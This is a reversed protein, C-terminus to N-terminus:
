FDKDSQDLFLKKIKLEVRLLLFGVSDFKETWFQDIPGLKM